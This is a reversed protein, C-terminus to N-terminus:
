SSYIFAHIDDFGNENAVGKVAVEIVKNCQQILEEVLTSNIKKANRLSITEKIRGVLYLYGNKDVYGRDGMHIKIFIILSDCILFSFSICCESIISNRVWTAPDKDKDKLYNIMRLPSYAVLEGPTGIPCENGNDDEIQYEFGPSTTFRGVSNYKVDM